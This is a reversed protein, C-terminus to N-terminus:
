GRAQQRAAKAQRASRKEDGFRAFLGFTRVAEIVFLAQLVFSALITGILVAAYYVLPAALGAQAILSGLYKEVDAAVQPYDTVLDFIAAAMFMWRYADHKRALTPFRWQILTPASCLVFILWQNYPQLSEPLNVAWGEGLPGAWEWTSYLDYHWWAWFLLISLLASLGLSFATSVIGRRTQADEMACEVGYGIDLIRYLWGMM